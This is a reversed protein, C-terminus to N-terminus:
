LGRNRNRRGRGRPSPRPSPEAARQARIRELLVSAPEYDRGERRALEAETPVLEGRFAKALIAQTLKEARGTAAAVRREIADALKFLAAVRRVIEHQETVSPLAVATSKLHDFSLHPRGEGYIWNFYQARGHSPSNLWLELFLAISSVAPRMLAVSQCVYYERVDHPVRCADGTNAGVITVLLDNCRVRTREREPDDHPPDIVARHTQDFRLPRVNQAMVFTAPGNVRYYKSWARSGSTILTVLREMSVIPWDDPVDLTVDMSPVAPPRKCGQSRPVRSSDIDSLLQDIAGRTNQRRWEQTLRGSCAAALVSQRFRKLIAPVKALRERAAHVRALLAEVRAVIRRQEALPPLLVDRSLLQDVRVSQVTTGEKRNAELIAHGHARLYLALWENLAANGSDLAKLDQNIVVECDAVAVPLTHALVGSRVVVLVSGPHCKRLRTEALAKDTIFETGCQLRPAKVDKSSIWATKGGWYARNSTSPTMGGWCDFLDSVRASVWSEPLGSDPNATQERQGQSLAPAPARRTDSTISM